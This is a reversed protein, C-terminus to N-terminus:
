IKPLINNLFDDKKRLLEEPTPQNTGSHHNEQYNNEKIKKKMPSKCDKRQFYKMPLDIEGKGNDLYKGYKLKIIHEIIRRIGDYVSFIDSEDANELLEIDRNVSELFDIDKDVDLKELKILNSNFKLRLTKIDKKDVPINKQFLYVCRKIFNRNHSLVIIQQCPLKAIINIMSDRREEDLTTFPDDLVVIKNQLLPDQKLKAVFFAFALIRKDSDSLTNKFQPKDNQDQIPVTYSDDFVFEYDCYHKERLTRNSISSLNILKFNAYSDILIKNIEEEYKQFSNAIQIKLSENLTDIKIKQNKILNENDCYEKYIEIGKSSFRSKNFKLKREEERLTNIDEPDMTIDKIEEYLERITKKFQKYDAFNKIDIEMSLDKEKEEIERLINQYNIKLPEILVQTKFEFGLAKFQAIEKELDIKKFDNIANNICTQTEKYVPNFFKKFDLILHEVRELSQGCFPCNNDSSIKEVGNELFSIDNSPVRWHNKIHDAIRSELTTDINKKINNEFSEFDFSLKTNQKLKILDEKNSNQVQKNHNEKIKEDVDNIKDSDKTKIFLDFSPGIKNRIEDRKKFLEKIKSEEADIEEQIKFNEEDILIKHLEAKQDQDIRNGLFINREIFNNDFIEIDKNSWNGDLTNTKNNSYLIECMPISKKPTCFSKRGLIYSKENEKLSRFIDTLTTKGTKNPGFIITQRGFCCNCNQLDIDYRGINKIKLIKKIM